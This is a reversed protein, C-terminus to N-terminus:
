SKMTRYAVAAALRRPLFRMSFAGLANMVGPVVSSRRARMARLGARAVDESRMMMLRQYWTPKQGSVQLFETATVGPALVTCSVGSGRLEYDLAEGYSLVFAKAASYSAYLPTPQFAGISSVLLVRGFGRARMDQVFLRTLQVLALIDLRLMHEEREWPIDLFPGYLGLGANNVLVDVDLREGRLRAHLAEPAGRATLDLPRVEVSVRQTARLEDALARLREERRAVLVLHCGQRALLRAFDAGLGSSAGTVLARRGRLESM